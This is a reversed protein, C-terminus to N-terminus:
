DLGCGWVGSGPFGDSILSRTFLFCVIDGKCLDASEHKPFNCSSVALIVRFM